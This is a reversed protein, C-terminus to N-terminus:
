FIDISEMMKIEPINLCRTEAGDLYVMHEFYSTNLGSSTVYYGRDNRLVVEKRFAVVPEVTFLWGAKWKRSESIELSFPIEPEDHVKLGVGHGRAESLITFPTNELRNRIAKQMDSISRGTCIEMVALRAIDWSIDILYRDEDRIEGCGYTWAGDSYFGDKELVMDITIIDGTRLKIQDPPNHFVHDNVNFHLFPVHVQGRGKTRVKDIIDAALCVTSIGPRIDVKLETFISHSFGALCSIKEVAGTQLSDEPLFLDSLLSKM